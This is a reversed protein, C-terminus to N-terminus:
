PSHAETAGWSPTDIQRWTKYTGPAPLRASRELLEGTQLDFIDALVTPNGFYPPPGTFEGVSIVRACTNGWTTRRLWFGPQKENAVYMQFVNFESFEPMAREWTSGKFAPPGKNSYLAPSDM